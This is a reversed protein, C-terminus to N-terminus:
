EAATAAASRAMLRQKKTESIVPELNFLRRANGGLINRKSEVSLFPLLGARLAVGGSLKGTGASSDTAKTFGVSPIFQAARSIGASASVLIVLLLSGTLLRAAAASVTRHILRM